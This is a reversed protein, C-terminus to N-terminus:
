SAVATWKWQLQRDVLFQKLGKSDNNVMALLQKFAQVKM